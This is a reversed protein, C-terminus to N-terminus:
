EDGTQEVPPRASSGTGEFAERTIRDGPRHRWVIFLLAFVVLGFLLVWFTVFARVHMHQSGMAYLAAAFLALVIWHEVKGLFLRSVLREKM